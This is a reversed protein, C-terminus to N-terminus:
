APWELQLNLPEPSRYIFFADRDNNGIATTLASLPMPGSRRVFWPQTDASEYVSLWAKSHACVYCIGSFAVDHVVPREFVGLAVDIMGKVYDYDTSLGVLTSSIEDGGGRPNVEVLAIEGGSTIKMETHSPGNEFGIRNLIEPLLRRIKQKVEDPLRSPQHHALEVFHPAGTSVKDTIQIVQHRGEFSISEVSVEVGEVYDEVMVEVDGAAYNVAADFSVHDQALSVGKKGGGRIPKVVCPYRTPAVGAYMFYNVPQLGAIDNTNDRVFQKNLIRNLAAPNTCHLGLKAAVEAAVKATLTSGNTVVGHVNEKRCVEVIRDIELISIPYFTALLKEPVVGKSNAFSIVDHGLEAAKEYLAKQGISTGIIALKM